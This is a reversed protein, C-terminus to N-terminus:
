LTALLTPLGEAVVCSVTEPRQLVGGVIESTRADPGTAAGAAVAIIEDATANDIVCDTLPAVPAGPFRRQVEADVVSKAAARTVETGIPTNCGALLALLVLPEPRM